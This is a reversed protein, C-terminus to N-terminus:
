QVYNFTQLIQLLFALEFSVCPFELDTQLSHKYILLRIKITLFAKEVQEKPQKNVKDAERSTEEEWTSM